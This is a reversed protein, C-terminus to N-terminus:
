ENPVILPRRVARTFRAPVRFLLSSLLYGIMSTTPSLVARSIKIILDDSVFLFTHEIDWINAPNIAHTLGRLKSPKALTLGYIQM